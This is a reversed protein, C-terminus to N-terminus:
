LTEETVIVALQDALDRLRDAHTDLEAAFDYLGAPDFGGAGEYSLVVFAQIERTSREACPAQSVVAHGITRGHVTLAIEPANHAIDTRYTDPRHDAHGVCWSPEPLTVDGHDITALTVTRPETSSSM